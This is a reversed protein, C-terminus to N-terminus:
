EILYITPIIESPHLMIVQNHRGPPPLNRARKSKIHRHEGSMSTPVKVMMVYPHESLGGNTALSVQAM